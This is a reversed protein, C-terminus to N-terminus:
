EFEVRVDISGSLASLHWALTDLVEIPKEATAVICIRREGTLCVRLAKSRYPAPGYIGHWAGEVAEIEEVRIRYTRFPNRVILEDNRIVAATRLVRMGYPLCVAAMVSSNWAVFAGGAAAWFLVVFTGIDFVAGLVPVLGIRLKM